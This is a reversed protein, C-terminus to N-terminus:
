SQRVESGTSADDTPEQEKVDRIRDAHRPVM